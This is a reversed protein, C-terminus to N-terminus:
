PRSILAGVPAHKNNCRGAKGGARRGEALHIAEVTAADGAASLPRRTASIRTISRPLEPIHLERHPHRPSALGNRYFLLRDALAAASVAHVGSRARARAHRRYRLRSVFTAPAACVLWDM